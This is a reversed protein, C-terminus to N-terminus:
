SARATNPCPRSLPTSRDKNKMDLTNETDTTVSIWLGKFFPYVLFTAYIVAFPALFIYSALADRRRAATLSSTSM